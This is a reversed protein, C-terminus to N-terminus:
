PLGKAWTTAPSDLRDGGRFGGSRGGCGHIRSGLQGLLVQHSNDGVGGTDREQNEPQLVNISFALRQVVRVSANQGYEGIPDPLSFLDNEKLIALFAAIEHM